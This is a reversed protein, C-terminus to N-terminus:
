RFIIPSHVVNGHLLLALILYKKNGRLLIIWLAIMLFFTASMFSGHTLKAVNHVILIFLRVLSEIWNFDVWTFTFFYLYILPLLFSFLAIIPMNLILALLSVENGIFFAMLIHSSFLGLILIVKPKHGLSLFTGMFLFSLSFSLPAKQFHGIGFAIAFTIIFLIEISLKIKLFQRSMLLVRFIILRKITLYPLFFAAFLLALKLWKVKKKSKIPKMFFLPAVLFASLHLGSPSFLFGLELEKFSQKIKPSIVFKEGFMMAWAINANQARAFSKKFEKHRAAAMPPLIIQKNKGKGTIPGTFFLLFASILTILAFFRM